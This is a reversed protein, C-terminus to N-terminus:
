CYVRVKNKARNKVRGGESRLSVWISVGGRFLLELALLLAAVDDLLRARVAGVRLM